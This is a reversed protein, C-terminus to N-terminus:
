EVKKVVVYFNKDAVLGKKTVGDPLATTKWETGPKLWENSDQLKVPM